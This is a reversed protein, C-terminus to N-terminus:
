WQGPREMRVNQSEETLANSGYPWQIMLRTRYFPIDLSFVEGIKQPPSTKQCGAGTHRQTVRHWLTTQKEDEM